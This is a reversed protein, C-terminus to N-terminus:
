CKLVYLQCICTISMYCMVVYFAHAYAVYVCSRPPPVLLLLGKVYISAYVPRRTTSAQVACTRQGPGRPDLASKAVASAHLLSVEGACYIIFLLCHPRKFGRTEQSCSEATTARALGRGRGWGGLFFIWLRGSFAEGDFRRGGTRQRLSLDWLGAGMRSDLADSGHVPNGGLVLLRGRTSTM